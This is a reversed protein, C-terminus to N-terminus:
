SIKQVDVQLSEDPKGIYYGQAFCIELEEVTNLIDVSSVFEAVTCIGKKSAFRVIAEVIDYSDSNDAIDRILSGDIKLYDPALRLLHEFNSYGSGFDDIALKCGLKKINSLFNNIQEFNGIGETELLEIVINEPYPFHSIANYTFQVFDHDTIDSISFNISFEVNRTEFYELALTIVRKSIALYQKSKKAIPLFYEPSIKHGNDDHM